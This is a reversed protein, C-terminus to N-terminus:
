KKDLKIVISKYICIYVFNKFLAPNECKPIIALPVYAVIDIFLLFKMYRYVRVQFHGGADELVAM